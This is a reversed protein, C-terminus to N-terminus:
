KKHKKNHCIKCPLTTQTSMFDALQTHGSVCADSLGGWIDCFMGKKKAYDIMMKALEIHGGYCAGYLGYNVDSPETKMIFKVIETHGGRCAKHLPLYGMFCKPLISIDILRIIGLHGEACAEILGNHLDDPKLTFHKMIFKAFAVNGKICAGEFCYRIERRFKHLKCAIGYYGVYTPFHAEDNTYWIYNEVILKINSNM